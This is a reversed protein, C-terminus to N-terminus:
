PKRRARHTPHNAERMVSLVLTPSDQIMDAIDRLSRRSYNLAARVQKHNAVPVPLVVGDLQKVWGDLTKPVPLQTSIEPPM